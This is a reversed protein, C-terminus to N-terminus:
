RNGTTWVLTLFMNVNLLCFNLPFGVRWGRSCLCQKDPGHQIYLYKYFVTTLHANLGTRAHNIVWQYVDNRCQFQDTSCDRCFYCVLTCLSYTFFCFFAITVVTGVHLVLCVLCIRVVLQLNIAANPFEICRSDFSSECGDREAFTAFLFRLQSNFPCPLTKFYRNVVVCDYHHSFCHISEHQLVKRVCGVNFRVAASVYVLRHRVIRDISLFCPFWIVDILRTFALNM